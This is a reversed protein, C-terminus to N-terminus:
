FTTQGVRAISLMFLLCALVNSCLFNHNTAFYVLVTCKTNYYLDIVRVQRIYFAFRLLGRLRGAQFLHVEVEWCNSLTKYEM